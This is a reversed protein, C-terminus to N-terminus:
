KLYPKKNASWLFIQFSRYQLLLRGEYNKKQFVIQKRKIEFRQTMTMTIRHYHLQGVTNQKACKRYCDYIKWMWYHRRQQQKCCKDLKCARRKRGQFIAGIKRSRLIWEYRGQRIWVFSQVNRGKFTCKCERTTWNTSTPHVLYSLWLSKIISCMNVFIQNKIHLKKVLELTLLNYM